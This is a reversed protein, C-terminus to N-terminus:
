KCADSIVIQIWMQEYVLSAVYVKMLQKDKWYYVNVVYTVSFYAWVAM